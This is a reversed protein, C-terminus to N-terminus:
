AVPEAYVQTRGLALEQLRRQPHLEAPISRHHWRGDGDLRWMLSEDSLLVDLTERLRQRLTPDTVPVTAEVRRDLNRPMIDASGIYYKAGRSDSGFRFIRSHELYRGLVSRVRINESVDKVGPRLSCMGRVILDIDTGAQSAAYLASIIEPDVLNNVKLIIRGDGAAAEARVLELLAARLGFPAVLLKRYSSQRSYGTLFNFLDSVDAGLDADASLLGIDEYLNATVPNYNGTGVHTYRRIGAEERRVVLSVKAHTKLGITGYVIHAGAQELRRAWKINTEEDFRATVEVVAVVQKGEEAARILSSAIPSDPSSTRYLTQKIAMVDPDRAAQEVFAEVSTSFSDYPHHLLVDGAKLMRFLDMHADGDAPQLRPQTVPTWREYKLAPAKLKVLESLKGLDLLGNVRFVDSQKLDLEDLLLALVDDSMGQDIELRVARPSRRRLRLVNEVAALLDEMDDENLAFDADRTVRFVHRRQVEMGPFLSALHAAIVQEIPVFHGAHPLEIFRALLPPVKVRAIRPEEATPDGVVVALNLSLSSIYPFPHAPDVALPTLVPFLREEFVRDLFARDSAAVADHDFFRVDDDALAPLLHDNLIRMEREGLEVVRARIMELLSHTATGDSVAVGVSVQEQLGSVRVQFFEDLNRSYIALFNLRELLPISPDEALALVRANFDLWSLERNILTTVSRIPQARGGWRDELTDQLERGSTAARARM